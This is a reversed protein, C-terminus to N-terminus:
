NLARRAAEARRQTILDVLGWEIVDGSFPHIIKGLWVSIDGEDLETVGRVLGFVTPGCEDIKDHDVVFDCGLAALAETARPVGDPDLFLVDAEFRKRPGTM